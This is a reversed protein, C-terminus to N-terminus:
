TRVWRQPDPLAAKDTPTPPTMPCHSAGGLNAALRKQHSVVPAPWTAWTSARGKAPRAVAPDLATEELDKQVTPDRM